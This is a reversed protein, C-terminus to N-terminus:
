RATSTPEELAERLSGLFEEFKRSRGVANQHIPRRVEDFCLTRVVRGSEYFRLCREDWPLGCFDIIKRTWVEPNRVLQEYPVELMPLPLTSKWHAMLRESERCYLGLNTFDACYGHMAPSLASTYCSFCADMPDRRCHIVRAGPFLMWALGLLHHNRLYKSVVRTAAGAEKNIEDLYRKGLRDSVAVPMHELCDPFPQAAGLEQPVQTAIRNLTPLEGVGHGAPHAAIIQEVLTTGSRPMGAIFVPLETRNSSHSLLRLRSPTFFHTLQDVSRVAQESAFRSTTSRVQNALRYAEFAQEYDGLSEQARGLALGLRVRVMGGVASNALHRNAVDIVEAHRGRQALLTAYTLGMEASETREKALPELLSMAEDMRNLRNLAEAKGAIVMHLAPNISLARDYLEIAEGPRGMITLVKGLNYLGLPEQPRLDVCQRGVQEAEEMAGFQVLAAGLLAAGLVTLADVDSENQALLGRCISEAQQLNGDRLLQKAQQLSAVRAVTM